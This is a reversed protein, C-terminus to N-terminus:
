RCLKLVFEVDSYHWDPRAGQYPLARELLSKVSENERVEIVEESVFHDGRETENQIRKIAVCKMMASGKMPPLLKFCKRVWRYDWFLRSENDANKLQVKNLLSWEVVYVHDTHINRLRMGRWTKPPNDLGNMVNM